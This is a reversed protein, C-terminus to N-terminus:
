FDFTARLFLRRPLIPRGVFYAGATQNSGQRPSGETIGDSDFLNFVSASIRLSEREGMTFRYGADLRVITYPDLKNNNADDAYKEGLYNASINADFGGVTYNAGVMGMVNPQRRLKNGVFDENGEFETFEHDQFTFNGYLNAGKAVNYNASVEIGLTQTSQVSVEEIVNNPNNPDNVFDISRRDNLGVYFLAATTSFKSGGYKIGLESQITGETEYTQPVGPASFRVGRLEPFFYGKSFNAYLNTTTNLKYLGALAVAFDSASVTGNEFTNSGVGTERNIQGQAREWRFGIDFNFRDFEMQDAAYFAIKTSQHYRNATQNGSIFGSTSYYATDEAVTAPDDYQINVVRPANRFDGVFNSIWNNDEARTDSMFTGVTVTHIDVTKTLNIEAVMEEMPRERDLIRNEFLLDSSALQAGNDAYTFQADAPLGRDSLYSAQDEPVNHVGDGDLFLNFWHEYRAAKTKASILWDDGFSHQLDLMLYGGKTTVGNGIPSEFRGNPTDFSYDTAQSTLLTFVEKGDNGTPRSKDDGNLPYPLYFQVKDDIMQGSVTFSSNNENFLKKINARIQYGKTTLGTELPGEDYRYFGSVSYLLDESLPGSSLFDMKTRGGSGWELQVKNEPDFSGTKSTYNIIGAVSGAGFLTSVGGRVFELNSFGMDGRFYVDHASSNLGFSSLVPLGDIQIPTFQYQGGSPMGRVFVNSAVEGGGGEATIGPVTRLIDAQSNASLTELQKSGIRTLSIPSEKQSRDAFTGTVIVADLAMVDGSLTFNQTINGGDSGNIAIEQSTYGTFSAILTQEGSPANPIEFNGNFDVVSGILTGKIVVNAGILLDGNEDKVTGSIKVQAMLLNTTLLMALVLACQSMISNLRKM